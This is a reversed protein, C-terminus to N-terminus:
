QIFQILNVCLNYIALYGDAPSVENVSISVLKVTDSSSSKLLPFPRKLSRCGGHKGSTLETEKETGSLNWRSSRCEECMWLSCRASELIKM